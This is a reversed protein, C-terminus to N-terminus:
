LISTANDITKMPKPKKNRKPKSSKAPLHSKVYTNFKTGGSKGSVVRMLNLSEEFAKDYTIKNNNLDTKMRKFHKDLIEKVEEKTMNKYDKAQILEKLVVLSISIDKSLERTEKYLEALDIKNTYAFVRADNDMKLDKYYTMELFRTIILDKSVKIEARTQLPGPIHAEAIMRAVSKVDLQLMKYDNLDTFYEGNSDMNMGKQYHHPPYVIMEFAKSDFIIRTGNKDTIFKRPNYFMQSDGEPESFKKGRSRYIYPPRVRSYTKGVPEKYQYAYEGKATRKSLFEMYRQRTEDVSRDPLKSAIDNWPLKSKRKEKLILDDERKTWPTRPREVVIEGRSYDSSRSYSESRKPDRYPIFKKQQAQFILPVHFLDGSIMFANREVGIHNSFSPLKSRIQFLESTLKHKLMVYKLDTVKTSSHLKKFRSTLEKTWFNARKGERTAKEAYGKKIPATAEAWKTQLLMQLDVLALTPNEKTMEPAMDLCFLQEATVSKEVWLWPNPFERNMNDTHRRQDKIKGELDLKLMQQELELIRLGEERRDKRDQKVNSYNIITEALNNMKPYVKVRTKNIQDEFIKAKKDKGKLLKSWDDYSLYSGDISDHDSNMRGDHPPPKRLLDQRMWKQNERRKPSPDRREDSEKFVYKHEDSSSLSWDFDDKKKKKGKVRVIDRIIAPTYKRFSRHYNGVIKKSLASQSGTSGSNSRVKERFSREQEILGDIIDASAGSYKIRATQLVKEQKKSQSRAFELGGYIPIDVRNKCVNRAKRVLTQLKERFGDTKSKSNVAKALSFESEFVDKLLQKLQQIEMVERELLTNLELNNGDSRRIRGSIANAKKISFKICKTLNVRQISPKRILTERIEKQSKPSAPKRAPSEKSRKKMEGDDNIDVKAIRKRKRPTSRKDVPYMQTGRRIEIGFIGELVDLQKNTPIRAGRGRRITKKKATVAKTPALGAKELDAFEPDAILWQQFENKTLKGSTKKNLDAVIKEITFNSKEIATTLQNALTKKKATVAKKPALGAARLKKDLNLRERQLRKQERLQLKSEKVIAKITNNKNFTNGQDQFGMSRAIKKLNDDTETRLATEDYMVADNSSNSSKSSQSNSEKSSLKWAINDSSKSKSDKSGKSDKSDSTPYTDFEDKKERAENKKKAALAKKLEKKRERIMNAKNDTPYAPHLQIFRQYAALESKSTRGAKDAFWERFPKRGEKSQAEWQKRLWPLRWRAPPLLKDESQRVRREDTPSKDRNALWDLRKTTFKKGVPLDDLVGTEYKSNLEFFKELKNAAAISRRKESSSGSSGSAGSRDQWAPNLRKVPGYKRARGIYKALVRLPKIPKKKKKNDQKSKVM